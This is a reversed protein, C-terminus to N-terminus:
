GKAFNGIYYTKTLGCIGFNTDVNESELVFQLYKYKKVKKKPYFSKVDGVASFTFDEFDVLTWTFKDSLVANALRIPPNGDKIYSLQAESRPLQMLELVSGRKNLTKFYQPYNDSDLRLKYLAHIADGGSM